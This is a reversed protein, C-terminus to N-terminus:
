VALDKERDIYARTKEYIQSAEKEPTLVIVNAFVDYHHMIGINRVSKEKPEVVMKERFLPTGDPRQARTCVSLLDYM